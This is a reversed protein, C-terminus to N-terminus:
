RCSKETVAVDRRVMAGLDGMADSVRNLESESVALTIQKGDLIQDTMDKASALSLAMEQQLFKTFAVKHFGIKWGEVLLKSQTTV